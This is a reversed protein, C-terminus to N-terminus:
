TAVVASLSQLFRRTQPQQPNGIVEAPPGQEIVRGDEIFVVRDAVDRAFRIEHTVVLMTMGEDALRRMVGLVEGVLEPDLASTPEDFLMLQPSTALARAIAVRQQQGGSLKHPLKRVHQSLGVADLLRLASETAEARDQGYVQIPAVTVNELVSLHPFLNFHQFVMGIRAEARAKALRSPSPEPRGESTYGIRHGGVVISGGDLSDLHNVLRLLTSKGSGSAGIIAVVEGRQVKLDVGDLVTRTGYAKRADQIVVLPASTTRAQAGAQTTLRGSSAVAAPLPEERRDRDLSVRKELYTQLLAVASTLVLYMVGSAFFVPFFKFSQSSLYQSRQTIESVSIVSALSTSKILNIFENGMSPLIARLALPLVVRRRAVWPSMGLADAALLQNRDVASVGGRFIEAFFASENLTFAIIATPIPAFVIGVNPLADYFFVLQLLLPTGRIIWIWTAAIWRLPGFRNIRMEAIIAGLILAGLLSAGAIQMTAISGEWLYKLSLYHWFDHM